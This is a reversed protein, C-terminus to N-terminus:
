NTDKAREVYQGTQTNIVIVDGTEIFLPTTVEAGTELKVIKTGGQATNGRIAPPAETVKLSIKIPLEITLLQNNYSIIQATSNPKLFKRTQEDIANESLSFRQKTEPDSFWYNGRHSYIFIVERKELEIEEFSDSPKFNRILVSGTKLNKLRAEVTAGGRGLHSHKTELVQHPAGEYNIIIGSKLDNMSLM